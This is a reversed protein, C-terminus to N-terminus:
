RMRVFIKSLSENKDNNKTTTKNGRNQKGNVLKGTSVEFPRRNTKPSVKQITKQAIALNISPLTTKGFDLNIPAPNKIAKTKKIEAKNEELGCADKNPVINSTPLKQNIKAPKRKINIDATTKLVGFCALVTKSPNINDEAM